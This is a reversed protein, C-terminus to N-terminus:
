KKNEDTEAEVTIVASKSLNHGTEQLQITVGEITVPEGIKIRIRKKAM